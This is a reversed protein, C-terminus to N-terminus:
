NNESKSSTKESIERQNAAIDSSVLEEEVKIEEVITPVETGL